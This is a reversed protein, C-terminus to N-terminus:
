KLNPETYWDTNPPFYYEHDPQNLEIPFWIMTYEQIHFKYQEYIRGHYIWSWYRSEVICIDGVNFKLVLIYETPYYQVLIVLAINNGVKLYLIQMLKFTFGVHVIINVGRIIKRWPQIKTDGYWWMTVVSFNLDITYICNTSIREVNITVGGGWGRLICKLVIYWLLWDPLQSIWDM